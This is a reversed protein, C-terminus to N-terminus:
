RGGRTRLKFRGREPFNPDGDVQPIELPGLPLVGNEIESNPGLHLRELRDVTVSEVGAVRQAATVLRSLEISTGFSLNDPHFVGRSGDALMGTSFVALVAVKVEHAHANPLVGVTMAIDLPVYRAPVVEVDHGIRRYGTLESALQELLLPPPRDTGLPDIAVRVLYRSGNWRLTAAARQVKPNAQALAAYDDATIARELTSHSAMPAQLKVDQMPEPEVGGVAPFPQTITVVASITGSRLVMHMLTGAGANGATGCGIRYNALFQAGAEPAMGCDGDGFRLHAVGEDDIEATCHLDQATSQLLDPKVQWRQLLHLLDAQLAKVIDASKPGEPDFQRLLRFTAPKLRTLLDHAASPAQGHSNLATSLAKALASSDHLDAPHFLPGSGDSLGPIASLWVQPAGARPDQILLTSAPAHKDVASRFTIPAKKLAARFKGAQVFVDSAQGASTCCQTSQVLPVCGDLVESSVLAGHDVLVINGCAVSLNSPHRAGPGLAMCEPSPGVASVTLTFPLADAVDWAVHVIPQEYVPDIDPIVQTLRVVHRRAADADAAQGTAPSRVEQFLLFDGAALHRLRRQRAPVPDKVAYSATGGRPPPTRTAPAPEAAPGDWGDRLTAHTSGQPLQFSELGWDHLGIESHEAYCHLAAASVPSFSLYASAPIDALDEERLVQM